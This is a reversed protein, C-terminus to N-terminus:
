PSPLGLSWLAPPLAPIPTSPSFLCQRKRVHGHPSSQPPRSQLPYYESTVDLYTYTQVEGGENSAFCQFIGSDEPRLKQVRLGGSSLVHYRPSQLKNISVADKFWRLTPLPAGTCFHFM